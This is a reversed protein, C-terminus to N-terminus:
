PACRSAQAAWDEVRATETDPAHDATTEPATAATYLWTNLADRAQEAQQDPCAGTPLAATALQGRWRSSDVSQDPDPLGVITVEGAAPTGAGHERYTGPVPYAHGIRDDLQALATLTFPIRDAHTPWACVTFGHDSGCVPDPTTAAVTPWDPGTLVGGVGVVGLVLAAVSLLLRQRALAVLALVAAAAAATVAAKGLLLATNPQRFVPYATGPYLTTWRASWAELYGGGYLVAFIAAAAVLGARPSTYGAGLGAGAVACLGLLAVAAVVLSLDSVRYLGSRSQTVVGILIGAYAALGWGLGATAVVVVAGLRGRSTSGALAHVRGRADAASLTATLGAVLPGLFMTTTLAYNAANAGDAGDPLPGVSFVLVVACVVMLAGVGRAWGTLARDRVVTWM